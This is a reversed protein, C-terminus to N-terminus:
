LKEIQDTRTNYVELGKIIKIRNEDQAFTLNGEMDRAEKFGSLVYGEQPTVKKISSNMKDKRIFYANNGAANCGIFDYGRKESLDCLSLLSSGYFLNSYHTRSRVFMPDYPVTIAKDKGFLSNYEIIVIIPNINKINKWVWYDNGDIDIHLLGIEGKIGEEAILNNINEADIFATKAKLNHKWYISDNKVYKMNEESGDMILGSWYNNILLFRTNSETYNEVGFEIFTRNTIDLNNVLYQIIGDDGWQSFVKFELDSLNTYTNKRNALINNAMLIKSEEIKLQNEELLGIIRNSEAFLRNLNRYLRTIKKLM